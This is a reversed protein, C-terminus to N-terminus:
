NSFYQWRLHILEKPGHVYSTKGNNLDEKIEKLLAKYNKSNLNQVAKTLIKGLYEIKISNYISNNEKNKSQKKSTYLLVVSKQIHIKYVSVKSFKHIPKIRIM